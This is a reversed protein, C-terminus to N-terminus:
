QPGEERAFCTLFLGARDRETVALIDFVRGGDRFRQGAKPRRPSGQPAGRVTIRYSISTLIVDEGSPDRGSGPLVEGWLTGVDTWIRSFGGAEDPVRMIQQLVLPRDLSIRM